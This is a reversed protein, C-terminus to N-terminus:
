VLRELADKKDQSLQEKLADLGNFKIENRLLAIITVTVNKDYVDESFDFIHVEIVRAKGNVTPRVGINMMGRHITDTGKIQVTVAYVGFGPILKETEPIHLNATPYGITRGLKNGQMVVGTFFYSYGLFQNAMEINGTMLAERIKTSSIIVNQLVHEPIEIVSYGFQVAFKELLQYNGERNKGFRHDYGTIITHPKFKAVLFNEIYDSATQEAFATNFSVVVIHGIGKAQLLQYKEEPTNLINVPQDSQVIVKRPHPYFTIVVPTGNVARAANLLQLLIQSHGVHVGDFTGITVVANEFVPLHNIDDYVQM